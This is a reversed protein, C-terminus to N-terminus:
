VTSFPSFLAFCVVGDVSGSQETVKTRIRSLAKLRSLWSFQKNEPLSPSCVVSHFFHFKAVKELLEKLLLYVDNQTSHCVPLRCSSRLSSTTSKWTEIITTGVKSYATLSAVSTIQKNRLLSQSSRVAHLSICIQWQRM